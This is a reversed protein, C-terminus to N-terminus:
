KSDRVFCVRRQKLLTRHIGTCTEEKRVQKHATEDGDLGSPLCEDEDPEQICLFDEVPIGPLSFVHSMHVM